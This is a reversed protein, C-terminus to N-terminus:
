NSGYFNDLQNSISSNHSLAPMKGGTNCQGTINQKIENKYKSLFVNKNDIKGLVIPPLM